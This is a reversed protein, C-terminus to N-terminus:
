VRRLAIYKYKCWPADDLIMIIVVVAVVAAAVVFDLVIGFM